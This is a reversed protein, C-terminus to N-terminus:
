AEERNLRVLRGGNGVLYGDPPLAELNKSVRQEAIISRQLTILEEPNDHLFQRIDELKPFKTFAKERREGSKTNEVYGRKETLLSFNGGGGRIFGFKKAFTVTTDVSDVCGQNVKGKPNLALDFAGSNISSGHKRKEIEFAQENYDPVVNEFEDKGEVQKTLKLWVKTTPVHNIQFGGPLHRPSGLVFGVKNRIQNINWITVYHDKRRESNIRTTIKSCMKGMLRALAAMTDDEASNELVKMPACAPISDLVILGVSPRQVMDELIDVAQEGYEPRAVIIRTTDVGIMRAWEEDYLGEADIWVVYKDTHKRQFERVGNLFITSKATSHYGYTMSVFGQPWGGLLAFDLIFIGTPIVNFKVTAGPRMLIGEGHAKDFDAFSAQLDPPLQSNSGKAATSGASPEKRTNGQARQRVKM